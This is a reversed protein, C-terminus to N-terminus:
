FACEQAEKGQDIIMHSCLSTEQFLSEIQHNSVRKDKCFQKKLSVWLLLIQVIDVHIQIPSCEFGDQAAYCERCKSLFLPASSWLEAYELM